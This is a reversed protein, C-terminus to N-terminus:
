KEESIDHNVAVDAEEVPTIDDRSDESVPTSHGFRSDFSSPSPDEDALPIAALAESKQRLRGQRVMMNTQRDVYAPMDVEGIVGSPLTTEWVEAVTPDEVRKIGAQDLWQSVLNVLDETSAGRRLAVDFEALQAVHQRRASASAVVQRRLGEYADASLSTGPDRVILATYILELRREMTILLHNTERARKGFM